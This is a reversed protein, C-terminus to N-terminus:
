YNENVYNRITEYTAGEAYLARIEPDIALLFHDITSQMSLM